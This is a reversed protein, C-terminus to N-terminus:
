VMNRQSVSLHDVPCNVFSVRAMRIRMIVMMMMMMMVRMLIKVRMIKKTPLEDDNDDGFVGVAAGGDEADNGEADNGEAADEADYEDDDEVACDEEDCVSLYLFVLTFYLDTFILAM